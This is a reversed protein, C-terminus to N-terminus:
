AGPPGGARQAGSVAVRLRFAAAAPESFVALFPCSQGAALAFGPPPKLRQFFDLEQPTMESLSTLSLKNGCYVTRSSLERGDAGVLSVDLEVSDLSAQSANHALGGVVLAQRGDKLRVYSARLDSLTVSQAANHPSEFYPGVVPLVEFLRLSAGPATSIALAVLAYGLGVAAFVALVLAAGRIKRRAPEVGGIPRPEGPRTEAGGREDASLPPLRLESDAGAGRAPEHGLFSWPQGDDGLQWTGPKSQGGSPPRETNRSPGLNFDPNDIAEPLLAKPPPPAFAAHAERSPPVAAGGAPAKGSQEPLAEAGASFDGWQPGPSDQSATKRQAQAAPNAAPEPAAVAKGLSFSTEEHQSALPADAPPRDGRWSPEGSLLSAPPTFVHSCRSCKFASSGEPLTREDVRYRTLCSPCQIEIM